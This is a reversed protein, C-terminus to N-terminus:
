PIAALAARAADLKAKVDNFRKVLETDRRNLDNEHYYSQEIAALEKELTAILKESAARRETAAKEATRTAQQKEILTREREVPEGSVNPTTAIKGKSKKVDANTLVKTTSKKRKAKADKAADVLTDDATLLLLLLALAKM